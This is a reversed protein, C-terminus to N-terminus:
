KMVTKDRQGRAKDDTKQSMGLEFRRDQRMTFSKWEPRPTWAFPSSVVPYRAWELWLVLRLEM